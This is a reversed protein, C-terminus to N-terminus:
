ASPAPLLGALVAFPSGVPGASIARRAGPSDRRRAAPRTYAVGGAEAAEPRFGLAEVLAALEARTLGAEAAMTPPVSFSVSGRARARVQASIRELIDVRVAFGDFVAFGVSLM